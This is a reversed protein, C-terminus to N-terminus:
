SCFVESLPGRVHCFVAGLERLAIVEDPESVGIIITVSDDFTNRSFIYQYRLVRQPVRLLGEASFVEVRGPWIAFLEKVIENRYNPLGGMLVIITMKIM